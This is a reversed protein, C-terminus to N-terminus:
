QSYFAGDCLAKVKDPYMIVQGDSFEMAVRKVHEVTKQYDGDCMRAYSTGSAIYYTSFHTKNKNKLIENSRKIELNEDMLPFELDVVTTM